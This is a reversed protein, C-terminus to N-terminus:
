ARQHPMAEDPSAHFDAKVPNGRQKGQARSKLGPGLAGDVSGVTPSVAGVCRPHIPAGVTSGPHHNAFIETGTEDVRGVEAPNIEAVAMGCVADAVLVIGRSVEANIVVPRAVQAAVGVAGIDAPEAKFVEARRFDIQPGAPQAAIHVAPVDAPDAKAIGEGQHLCVRDRRACVGVAIADGIGVLDEPGAAQCAHIGRAVQVAVANRIQPFIEGIRIREIWEVAKADDREGEARVSCVGGGGPGGPRRSGIRQM